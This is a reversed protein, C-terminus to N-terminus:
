RPKARNKSNSNLYLKVSEYVFYMGVLGCISYGFEAPAHGYAAAAIALIACCVVFSKETLRDFRQALGGIISRPM